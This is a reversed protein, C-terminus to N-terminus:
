HLLSICIPIFYFTSIFHFFLYIFDIVISICIFIPSLPKPIQLSFSRRDLGEGRVGVCVNKEALCKLQFLAWFTTFAGQQWMEEHRIAPYTLFVVHTHQNGSRKTARIFLICVFKLSM